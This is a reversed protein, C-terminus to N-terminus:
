SRKLVPNDTRFFNESSSYPPYYGHATSKKYFLKDFFYKEGIPFLFSVTLFISAVVLSILSFTFFLKKM